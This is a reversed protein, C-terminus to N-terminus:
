KKELNTIVKLTFSALKLAYEPSATPSPSGTPLFALDSPYDKVQVYGSDGAHFM